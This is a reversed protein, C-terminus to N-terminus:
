VGAIHFIREANRYYIAERESDSLQAVDMFQVAPTSPQYPYDIAWMINDIGIKKISFDLALPDEVGSTTIAINRQFYESPKLETKPARGARQALSNMYDIRWLWFHIAEGMHGVVIKLDPFRDLVGSVMLRVLHTGVEIGYGWTAGDMGFERMPGSMPDSPSRPHIYIPRGLSEAAELIPFYREQDLYENNTHSNIVFGHFGLSHIARSMEDVTRAPDQPAVVAMPAYRGPNRQCASDLQDNALRALSVATDPSFMQVGPATLMMLAVAVGNADMEAIRGEDLDLLKPLLGGRQSDTTRPDYISKVLLLDTSDGGREVVRGLETAIEPITFAEETAIRRPNTRNAEPQM